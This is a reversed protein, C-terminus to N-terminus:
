PRALGSQRILASVDAHPRGVFQQWIDRPATGGGLSLVTNRYRQCMDTANTPSHATPKAQTVAAYADASYVESWKYSYYGAAYGGAFIHSFSCLARNNPDRPLLTTREAIRQDVDFPTQVAASPTSRGYNQHLAMDVMGFHLQRLTALGQLFTREHQLAKVMAPPMPVKTQYHEAILALWQPEYCFNEMFQSAVEVFDWEIGNLGSAQPENVTTLMHQLCHGFEHFLTLVDRFKMLSPEGPLPATQNCVLYAIPVRYSQSQPDFNRTTCIDAWAGGNKEAPRSYFDGYFYALTQGSTADQVRFLRVESNWISPTLAGVQHVEEVRVAFLQEVLSFMGQLVKPFPFYQAFQDDTFQLQQKKYQEGVYALDWPQIPGDFALHDHAFQTLTAHERRACPWAAEHLTELLQNVADVSPAMKSQLSLEAYSTYGLLRASEQRLQLIEQMPTTNDVEGQSARTIFAHYAQHRLERDACTQMFPGYVPFDLTVLWPGHDATAEPHGQSQANRALLSLLQSSCGDLRQKDTVLLQFAKTADLVHNSFTNSLSSLRQAIETFRRHPASGPQLSVGSLKMALIQKDLVRQQVATLADFETSTQRLQALADYLANSQQIRLNIEVVRPQIAQLAARVEPSNRVNHLHVVLGFAKELAMMLDEVQGFTGAWTPSLAKERQSFEKDIRTLLLDLAPEIDAPNLQDFRPFESTVDLFAYKQQENPSVLPRYTAETVLTRVEHQGLGRLMSGGAWCNDLDSRQRNSASQRFAQTAM